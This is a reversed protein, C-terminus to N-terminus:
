LPAETKEFEVVWVWPNTDWGYGRKANILDWLDQFKQTNTKPYEDWNTCCGEKAAEGETINQLREVWVDKVRLFLRAAERPMHISPRWKPSEAGDRWDARYIYGDPIGVEPDVDTWDSIRAWTERVWIIDGPQHTAWLDPANDKYWNTDIPNEGEYPQPKVVRRTQTKRGDLIARVMDTSFIIPKM